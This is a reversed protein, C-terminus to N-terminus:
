KVEEIRLIRDGPVIRNVIEMGSVVQGFVTYTGDLHPQPSHTIFWQSGGTDPGSLAMGLTGTGYLHRNIEDRISYGPGGSTDGRPDGGQIVFNPVVRPWEQGNFYGARALTLFNDVTGPADAGFLEVEITGRSTVIRARPRADPIVYAAALRAYEAQQRGEIPLASGWARATMTDGFAAAAHQRVLYDGSRQFRAFFSRAASADKKALEGLADVAALAADNMSDARARDYADLLVPLTAPDALKGLGGLANTRQIVDRAGLSEILLNRIPAVATDGAAGVAAEIAIASVRGEPDRALSAVAERDGFEAYARAAAARIRWGPDRALTGAVERAQAPAVEALAAIAATRLAEPASANLAATRLAGASGPARAALRGLSEAASIALYPDPSGLLRELESISEPAAYTGLARVASVSVEHYAHRTAALIVSLARAQGVGSSDALPATLARIAFSRVLPDLDSAYPFLAATGRPDPRRTLAYAARWRIATDQSALWPLIPAPDAPRPFRYVSLLALSVAERVGNGTRPAALLFSEVATRAAPTRIKGLALAAEGVVTPATAVRQATVYPALLPVAASDAVQGLAFAATAAVSTDADALLRGLLPVARKDHIRGAALAARRRAAASASAAASELAAADYERRDELRLLRTAVEPSGPEAVTRPTAPAPAPTGPVSAAPACAAALLLLVPTHRPVIM